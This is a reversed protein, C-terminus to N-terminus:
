QSWEHTGFCAMLFKNKKTLLARLPQASSRLPGIRGNGWGEQPREGCPKDPQMRENWQRMVSVNAAMNQAPSKRLWPMLRSGREPYAVADPCAVWRRGNSNSPHLRIGIRVGRSITQMKLVMM